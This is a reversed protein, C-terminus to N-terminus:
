HTTLHKGSYGGGFLGGYFVESEPERGLLETIQTQNEAWAKAVGEHRDAINPDDCVLQACEFPKVPHIACLGDIFFVCQGRPDAPYEAGTEEGVLAPALVFIDSTDEWWNVALYKKFFEQLSLGLYEAAIEAEGPLFWGPCYLCAKKCRECQCEFKESM